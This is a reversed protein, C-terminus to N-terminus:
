SSLFALLDPLDGIATWDAMSENWALCTEDVRGQQWLAALENPPSPGLQNGDVDVYHWPTDPFTPKAPKPPGGRPPGGRPAGVPAPAPGGRGPGGRPAGGRNAGRVAASRGPGAVRSGATEVKQELSPDFGLRLPQQWNIIQAIESESPASARNGGYLTQHLLNIFKEPQSSHERLFMELVNEFEPQPAFTDLFIQMLNWGKRSSEPDPNNCLQKMLQCYMEDRLPPQQLCINCIEIALTDPYQAKRDGM